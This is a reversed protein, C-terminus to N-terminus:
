STKRIKVWNTSYIIAHTSNWIGKATVEDGVKLDSFSKSTKRYTFKTTSSVEIVQDGRKVSTLVFTNNTSDISKVTGVFTSKWKQISLDKVERARISYEATYRGKITVIDGTRFESLGAKANYKRKLKAGATEVEYNVSDKSVTLITGDIASVTAERLTTKRGVVGASVTLPLVLFIGLIGLLWSTRTKM